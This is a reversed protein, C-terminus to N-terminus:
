NAVKVMSYRLVQDKYMYGKQMEEVVINEPQSEDEVHVVPCIGTIGFVRSLAAVVEDYDYESLCEVHVRGQTKNVEFDGEVNKLAFRIQKLLADEFVYRNKGKIAIEAYKILFSTYIM